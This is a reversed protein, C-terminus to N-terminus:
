KWLWTAEAAKPMNNIWANCYIEHEQLAENRENVITWYGGMRNLKISVDVAGLAKNTIIAQLLAPSFMSQQEIQDPTNVVEIMEIHKLKGTKYHAGIIGKWQTHEFSGRYRKKCVTRNNRDIM